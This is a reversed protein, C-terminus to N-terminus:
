LVSKLGNILMQVSMMVLLMGMLREIAALGREKLVRYLTPAIILLIFTIGWAIMLALFWNMMQDPASKVMLILLALASPGAIMPIALPVLFPEGGPQKGMVGEKGPFIMRLGIIMLVIGGAIAVSEQQLHLFSLIRQGTFLFLLLIALAFFLERIIIRQRRVPDVNKLISLIVPINGLPDMVFVLVTAASWISDSFDM